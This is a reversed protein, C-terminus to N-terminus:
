FPLGRAEEPSVQVLSDSDARKQKKPLSIGRETFTFINGKYDFAINKAQGNRYKVMKFVIEKDTDEPVNDTCLFAIIDAEQEIEGSGRLDSMSPERTKGDKGKDLERNPQALAIVPVNLQRAMNKIGRAVEGIEIVPNGLDRPPRVKQLYDVIILDLGIMRKLKKVKTLIDMVTVDGTDDIYMESKEVKGSVEDLKQISIVNGFPDKGRRLTDSEIGSSIGIVRQAIEDMPMDLSFFACIKNHKVAANYMVNLAFATKGVSPRAAVVIMNSPQLGWFTKDLLPFGTEVGFSNREGNAAKLIRERGKELPISMHILDSKVNRMALKSLLDEAESILQDSTKKEDTVQKAIYGCLDQLRRRCSLDKLTGMHHKYNTSSSTKTSIEIVYQFESFNGAKQLESSIGPLDLAIGSNYMQQLIVYLAQNRKNSFDKSTVSGFIEDAVFDKGEAFLLCGLIYKETELNHLEM